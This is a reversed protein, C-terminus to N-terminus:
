IAGRADILAKRTVWRDERIARRVQLVAEGGERALANAERSTLKSGPANARNIATTYDVIAGFQDVYRGAKNWPCWIWDTDDDGNRLGVIADRLGRDLAPDALLADVSDADLSAIGYLWVAGYHWEKWMTEPADEVEVKSSGGSKLVGSFWLGAAGGALLVLVAGIKIIGGGGKGKRERLPKLEQRVSDLTLSGPAASPNILRNCLERWKKGNKGIASWAPSEGIPWGSLERYPTFLILQYLLRGLAQLDRTEDAKADGSGKAAPDTLIVRAKDVQGVRDLMVNTPKIEGHGRGCVQQVEGLAEVISSVINSLAAGDLRVRGGILGELSRPYRDTVYFAGGGGSAMEHIPAWGKAKAETLKQMVAARELFGQAARQADARNQVTDGVHMSKVVFEDKGGKGSQRAVSVTGLGGRFLDRTTEYRGFTTM